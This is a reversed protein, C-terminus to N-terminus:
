EQRSLPSSVRPIGLHRQGRDRILEILRDPAADGRRSREEAASERAIPQVPRAVPPDRDGGEFRVTPRCHPSGDAEGATRRRGAYRGLIWLQVTIRELCMEEAVGRLVPLKPSHLVVEGDNGDARWRFLDHSLPSHAPPFRVFRLRCGDDSAVDAGLHTMAARHFPDMENPSTLIGTWSKEATRGPSPATWKRWNRLFSRAGIRYSRTEVASSATTGQPSITLPYSYAFFLNTTNLAASSLAAAGSADFVISMRSKTLSDLM